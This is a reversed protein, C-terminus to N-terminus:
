RRAFVYCDYRVTKGSLSHSPKENALTPGKLPRKVVIKLPNAGKAAELLEREDDCPEELQQLLQLKKKVSSSKRKEPFMPDLFVVDPAFDISELGEVSDGVVLRMRSVPGALLPDREAREMADELLAAIAENREFLTVEFGAAALLFSDEGLGATADVALPSPDGKIKAAKVLLERSLNSASIRPILRSFDGRISMEGDTLTLGEITKVLHAM